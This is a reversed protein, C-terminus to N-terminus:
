DRLDGDVYVWRGARRTFRSREHLVGRERGHRWSARFEVEGEADAPGGAHADVVELGVWDMAPDLTLEDPRHRPHWTRALYDVDGVAFASYRSRMLEVATAAAGRGAHLPFCCGAYSQGTGCPCAAAAETPERRSHSAAEGFVGSV